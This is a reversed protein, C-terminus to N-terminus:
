GYGSKDTKSYTEKDVIMSMELILIRTITFDEIFLHICTGETKNTKNGSQPLLAIM